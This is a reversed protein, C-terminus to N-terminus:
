RSSAIRIHARYFPLGIAVLPKRVVVKRVGPTAPGSNVRVSASSLAPAISIVPATITTHRVVLAQAAPHAFALAAALGAAAASFSFKMSAGIGGHPTAPCGAWAGVAATATIPLRKKDM